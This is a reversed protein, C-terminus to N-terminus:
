DEARYAKYRERDELHRKLKYCEETILGQYSYYKNNIKLTDEMKNKFNELFIRRGYENLYCGKENYIFYKDNLIKKNLLTGILREVIVPKFIDAIDLALSFSRDSPEHLYSISPNLGSIKISSLVLSYLITNGYSILANLPDPPPNYKREFKEAGNYILPFASYYLNWINGEIGRLGEISDNSVKYSEIREIFNNLDIKKNYYKLNKIINHKIGKVIESAIYMRKETDLYHIAQKITINGTEDNNSPMITSLYTYDESIFHVIIGLKSIYDLAWSSISVKGTIILDRINMVPLHKKFDEGIFYLTNGEREIKGDKSIYYTYM